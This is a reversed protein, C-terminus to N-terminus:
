FISELYIDTKWFYSLIPETYDIPSPFKVTICVIPFNKLEIYYLDDLLILILHLKFNYHSSNIENLM